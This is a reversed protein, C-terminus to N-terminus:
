LRIPVDNSQVILHKLDEDSRTRRSQIRYRRRLTEPLHVLNWLFSGLMKFKRRVPQRLMILAWLVRFLNPWEYNKILSCINHREGLIERWEMGRGARTAGAFHHFVTARPATLVRYGLIWLRWCLDVDEHYMFFRDDMGGVARFSEVRFLAAGASAFIVEDTESFQNVDVEFMGRDWTYGLRNMMGGVGNLTDPKGYLRIRSAVAAVAPDSDAVKVLNALWDPDLKIDTNLLVLYPGSTKTAALNAAKSFGQNSNQAVLSVWPFNNRVYSASDDTSANDILIAEFQTYSQSRLTTLLEDLYRRGNYNIIAVLV